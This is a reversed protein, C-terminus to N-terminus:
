SDSTNPQSDRKRPIRNFFLSYQKSLFSRIGTTTREINNGFMKLVIYKEAPSRALMEMEQFAFKEDMTEDYVCAFQRVEQWQAFSGKAKKMRELFIRQEKKRESVLAMRFANFWMEFDNGALEEIKGFVIERQKDELAIRFLELWEEWTVAVKIMKDIVAVRDNRSHTEWNWIIWQRLFEPSTEPSTMWPEM